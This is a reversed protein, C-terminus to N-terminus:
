ELFIVRVCSMGAKLETESQFEFTGDQQLEITSQYIETGYIIIADILYSNRM